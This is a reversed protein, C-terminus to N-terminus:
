DNLLREIKFEEKLVLNVSDCDECYDKGIFNPAIDESGCDQCKLDDYGKM